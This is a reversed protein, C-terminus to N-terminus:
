EEPLNNFIEKRYEQTYESKCKKCMLNSVSGISANKKTLTKGCRKCDVKEGEVVCFCLVM